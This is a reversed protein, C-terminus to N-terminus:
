YYDALTLRRHAGGALTFDVVRGAPAGTLAANAAAAPQGDIATVVEGAKFGAKEAPGGRAVYLIRLV